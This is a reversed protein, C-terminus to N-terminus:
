QSASWPSRLYVNYTGGQGTGVGIKTMSVSNTNTLGFTFNTAFSSDSGGGLAKVFSVQPWLWTPFSNSLLGAAGWNHTLVAPGADNDAFFVTAALEPMQRAQAATPATTTPAGLIPHCYTVTAGLESELIGMVLRLPYRWDERLVAWHQKHALAPLALALLGLVAGVIFISVNM